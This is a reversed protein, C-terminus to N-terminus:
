GRVYTTGCTVCKVRTKPALVGAVMKGSVSRKATFQTGGCDPCALGGSTHTGVQSLARSSPQRTTSMDWGKAWGYILVGMFLAIAGFSLVIVVDRVAGHLVGVLGATSAAALTEARLGVIGDRRRFGHDFFTVRVRTVRM